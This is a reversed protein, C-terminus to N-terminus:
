NFLRRLGSRPAMADLIPDIQTGSFSWEAPDLYAWETLRIGGDDSRIVNGWWAEPKRSGRRFLMVEVLHRRRPHRSPPTRTDVDTADITFVEVVFAIHEPREKLIWNMAEPTVRPVENDSSVLVMRVLTGAANEYLFHPPPTASTQRVTSSVNDLVWRRFDDISRM